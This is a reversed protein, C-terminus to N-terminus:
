EDPYHYCEKRFLMGSIEKSQAKNRNVIKFLVKTEVIQIHLRFPRDLKKERSFSDSILTIEIKGTKM